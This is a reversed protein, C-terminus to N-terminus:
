AVPLQRRFGYSIGFGGPEGTSGRGWSTDADGMDEIELIQAGSNWLAIVAARLGGNPAYTTGKNRWLASEFVDAMPDLDLEKVLARCEERPSWFSLAETAARAQKWRAMEDLSCKSPGAHAYGMLENSIVQAAPDSFAPFRSKDGRRIVGPLQYVSGMELSRAEIADTRAQEAKMAEPATFEAILADLAPDPEDPVDKVKRMAEVRALAVPDTLPRFDSPKGQTFWTSFEGRAEKRRQDEDDEISPYTLLVVSLLGQDPWERQVFGFLGVCTKTSCVRGVVLVPLGIVSPASNM